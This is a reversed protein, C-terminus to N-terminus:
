TITNRAEFDAKVRGMNATTNADYGARDVLDQQTVGDEDALL